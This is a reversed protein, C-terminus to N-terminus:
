QNISINEYPAHFLSCHSKLVFSANDHLSCVEPNTNNKQFLSLFFYMIELWILYFKATKTGAKWDGIWHLVFIEHKWGSNSFVAFIATQAFIQENRHRISVAFHWLDELWFANDVNRTYLCSACIVARTKEGFRVM